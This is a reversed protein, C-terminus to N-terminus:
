EDPNAIPARTMDTMEVCAGRVGRCHEIIGTIECRQGVSCFEMVRKALADKLFCDEIQYGGDDLKWFEGSCTHTLGPEARAAACGLLAVIAALALIKHM